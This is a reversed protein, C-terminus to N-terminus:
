GPKRTSNKKGIMFKNEQSKSIEEKFTSITEKALKLKNKLAAIEGRIKQHADTITKLTKEKKDEVTFVVM